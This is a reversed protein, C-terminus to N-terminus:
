GPFAQEEALYEDPVHSEVDDDDADELDNHNGGGAGPTARASPFQHNYRQVTSLQDSAFSM